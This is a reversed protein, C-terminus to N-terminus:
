NGKQQKKGNNKLLCNLLVQHHHHRPHQQRHPPPPPPVQKQFSEVENGSILIVTGNKLKIKGTKNKSNSNFSMSVIDEKMFNHTIGKVDIVAVKKNKNVEKTTKHAQVYQISLMLSFGLVTMVILGSLRRIYSYKTQKSTTIMFLRRKIQNNFFSNGIAHTPYNNIATLLMAAFAAGDQKQISKDDALFEHITNLEKRILWFMPNMWFVILVLEIWIKDYSHKQEIHALEHKLINRGETSESNINKRWFLWKFFSFPAEEEKTIIVKVNQIATINGRKYTRWIRYIGLALKSLLFTSILIPMLLFYNFGNEAPANTLVIIEANKAVFLNLLQTPEQETFFHIRAFPIVISLFISALLFFRNWAHFKENYLAIRYYGFLISSCLIMKGLYIMVAEM